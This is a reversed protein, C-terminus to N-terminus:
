DQLKRKKTTVAQVEEEGEGVKTRKKAQKEQVVFDGLNQKNELLKKNVEKLMEAQSMILSSQTNLVKELCEIKANQAVLDNQLAGVKANAQSALRKNKKVSKDMRRMLVAMEDRLDSVSMAGPISGNQPQSPSCAMALFLNGPSSLLRAPRNCLSGSAPFPPCRFTPLIQEDFHEMAMSSIDRLEQLVEFSRPPYPDNKVWRLVRYVEDIVKGPIFCCLDADIYKAFTMRLLNIRTEMGTVIECHRAFHHAKRVSERRPLMAKIEQLYKAQAREACRFGRNLQRKCIMDFGRCVIRMHSVQDFSLLDLVMELVCDPLSLLPFVGM